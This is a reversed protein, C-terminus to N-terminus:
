EVGDLIRGESTGRFAGNYKLTVSSLRTLSSGYNNATTIIDLVDVSPDARWDSSIVKRNLLYDRALEGIAVARETTTILPNDVKFTDGDDNETSATIVTKSAKLTDGTVSVSVDGSGTITLLCAFTYYQASVLTGGTVSASVNIAPDKYEIWISKTGTINVVGDYLDKDEDDLIYNYANVNVRFLPKALSIDSKRFSNFSDITYDVPENSIPEIHINGKRDTFLVCGAANAIRILCDSLSLLPLPANTYINELSEDIFWKVSGDANLPLNAETLVALALSYLSVGVESYLGKMYTDRMFELLDRAEFSASMGNQPADWASMYFVGGDIWEVTDGIKYGYRTRIEQREMIYKSQGNLNVPNYDDSTNDIEFKVAIKPLKTALPDVEQTHEFSMLDTKYYVKNIGVFINSIRARHQPLCWKLVEIRILDYDEIDVEVISTVSTNGDVRKEAVLSGMNYASVIFSEAYEGYADAWTITLGPIIPSHVVSFAIEVIPIVDFICAEDSLSQSVFGTDGYSSAPIDQFSGNLVCLNRELTAYPIINKEVESVIQPTNAIYIAGNDSATTDELADPDAIDYSVEVFSEEVLTRKQNAKWFASVPQM